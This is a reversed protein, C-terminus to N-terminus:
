PEGGAAARVARFLLLSHVVAVVWTGVVLVVGLMLVWDGTSRWSDEVARSIAAVDITQPSATEALHAVVGMTQRGVRIAILAIWLVTLAIYVTAQRKRGLVVHGLGPFLLNMLLLKGLSAAM